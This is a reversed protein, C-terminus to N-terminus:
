LEMPNDECIRCSSSVSSLFLLGNRRFMKPPPPFLLFRERVSLCVNEGEGEELERPGMDTEKSTSSRRLPTDMGSISHLSSDEPRSNSRILWMSDFSSDSRLTLKLLIFTFFFTNFPNTFFM